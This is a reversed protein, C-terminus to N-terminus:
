GAGLLDASAPGNDLITSQRGRRASLGAITTAKARKAAQDDPEPMVTPTTVVPAAAAAVQTPAASESKGGGMLSNLSNLASIGTGFATLATMPDLREGYPVGRDPQGVPYEAYIHHNRM